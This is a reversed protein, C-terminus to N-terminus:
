DRPSVDRKGKVKLRPSGSMQYLEDITHGELLQKADNLVQPRRAQYQAEPEDEFTPFVRGQNIDEVEESSLDSVYRVPKGHSKVLQARPVDAEVEMLGAELDLSVTKWAVDGVNLNIVRIPDDPDGSVRGDKDIIATGTIPISLRM